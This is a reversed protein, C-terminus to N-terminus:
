DRPLERESRLLKTTNLASTIKTMLPNLFCNFTSPFVFNIIIISKNFRMTHSRVNKPSNEHGLIATLQTSRKEGLPGGDATFRTASRWGTRVLYVKCGGPTRPLQPEVLRSHLRSHASPRNGRQSCWAPSVCCQGWGDSRQCVLVTASCYVDTSKLCSTTDSSKAIHTHPPPPTLSPLSRQPQAVVTKGM